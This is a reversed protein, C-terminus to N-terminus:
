KDLTTACLYFFLYFCLACSFITVVITPFPRRSSLLSLWSALFMLLIAVLFPDKYSDLEKDMAFTVCCILIVFIFQQLGFFIRKNFGVLKKNLARWVMAQWSAIFSSSPGGEEQARM